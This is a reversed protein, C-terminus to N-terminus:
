SVFVVPCNAKNKILTKIEEQVPPYAVLLDYTQFKTLLSIEQVTNGMQVIVQHSIEWTDLYDEAKQFLTVSSRWTDEIKVSEPCTDTLYKSVSCVYLFTVTTQKLNKIQNVVYRAAESADKENEAYVLINRYM